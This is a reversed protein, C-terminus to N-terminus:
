GDFHGEERLTNVLIAAFPGLHLSICNTSWRFGFVFEDGSMAFVLHRRGIEFGIGFAESCTEVEDAM